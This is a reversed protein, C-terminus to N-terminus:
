CRILLLGVACVTVDERSFSIVGCNSEGFIIFRDFFLQAIIITFNSFDRFCLYPDLVRCLFLLLDSFVFSILMACHNILVFCIPFPAELILLKM